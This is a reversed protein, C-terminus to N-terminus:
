KIAEGLMFYSMFFLHIVSFMLFLKFYLVFSGAPCFFHFTSPARPAIFIRLMERVNRNHFAFKVIEMKAKPIKRFLIKIPNIIEIYRFKKENKLIEM